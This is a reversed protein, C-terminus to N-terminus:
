ETVFVLNVTILAHFLLIDQLIEQKKEAWVGGM